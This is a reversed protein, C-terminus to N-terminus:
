KRIDEGMAMGCRLMMNLNPEEEHRESRMMQINQTLSPQFVGKKCMKTILTPFDITEHDFHTCYSCSIRMPNTCDRAYNGLGKCNYCILQRRGRGPGM